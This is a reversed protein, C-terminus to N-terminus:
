TNMVLNKMSYGFLIIRRAELHQEWLESSRLMRCLFIFYYLDNLKDYKKGKTIDTKEGYQAPMIHLKDRSSTLGPILVLNQVKMIDGFIDLLQQALPATSFMGRQCRLQIQEDRAVFLSAPQSAGVM